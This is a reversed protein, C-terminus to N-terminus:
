FRNGRPQAVMRRLVGLAADVVRRPEVSGFALYAALAIGAIVFLGRAVLTAPDLADARDSPLVIMSAAVLASASLFGTVLSGWRHPVPYRRQSARMLSGFWWLSTTATAVGAGVIGFPPVLALALAANAIGAIVTVKAM